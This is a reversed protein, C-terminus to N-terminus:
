GNESHYEIRTTVSSRTLLRSFDQPAKRYANTPLNLSRLFLYHSLMAFRDNWEFKQTLRLKIWGLSKFTM